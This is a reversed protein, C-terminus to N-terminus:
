TTAQEEPADQAGFGLVQVPLDIKEKVVLFGAVEGVFQPFRGFQLGAMNSLELLGDGVGLLQSAKSAVGQRVGVEVEVRLGVSGSGTPCLM